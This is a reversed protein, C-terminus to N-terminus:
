PLRRVTAHISIDPWATRFSCHRARVSSPTSCTCVTKVATGSQREVNVIVSVAGLPTTEVKVFKGSLQLGSSTLRVDAFHVVFM